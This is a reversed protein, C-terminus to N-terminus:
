GSINKVNDIPVKVFSARLDADAQALINGFNRGAGWVTGDPKLVFVEGFTIAIQTADDLFPLRTFTAISKRHGLGLQGYQNGAGWATGDKLKIVTAADGTFVQEADYIPVQTFVNRSSYDGLGLQGSFNNGCVWVTGDNKIAVVHSYGAAITKIVPFQITLCQSVFRTRFLNEM